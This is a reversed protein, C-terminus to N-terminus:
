YANKMKDQVSKALKQIEQAKKIVEMSLFNMGAKDVHQKLEATLAVLKETDSQLQAHRELVANAIQRQELRAQMDIATSNNAAELRAAMKQAEVQQASAAIPLGPKSSQAACGVCVLVPLFYKLM